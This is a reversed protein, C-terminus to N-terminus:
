LNRSTDLLELLKDPEYICDYRESIIEDNTSDNIIRELLDKVDPNQTALKNLTDWDLEEKLRAQYVMESDDPNKLNLRIIGIGFSNSLRKLEAMFENDESIDAAVLYGENAWSSNSVAQFFSERLNHFGLELKLEFSYIKIPVRGIRKSLKLVGKQWENLPYYVGIIDPHLWQSYISKLSKEHYITKTYVNLYTYAYYTLFPHIEREKIKSRKPKDIKNVELDTINQLEEKSVLNKLFFKMPRSNINIFVSKPNDKIDVNIKAAITAWPTKGVFGGEEDYKKQKAIEWIQQATLPIKKERLIREALDRLTFKSLDIVEYLIIM